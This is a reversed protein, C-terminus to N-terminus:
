CALTHVRAHLKYTFLPQHYNGHRHLLLLCVDLGTQEGVPVGPVSVCSTITLGDSTTVPEDTATMLM